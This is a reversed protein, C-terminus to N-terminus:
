RPYSEPFVHGAAWAGMYKLYFDEYERYSIACDFGMLEMKIGFLRIMVGMPKMGCALYFAKRRQREPLNNCDEFVSEIELFVDQGTYERRLQALAASGVGQGRAEPAIALYDILVLRQGKVTTALGLFVGNEELCWIDMIGKRAQKLIYLFPKREAAPFASLYLRYLQLYRLGRPKVLQINRM